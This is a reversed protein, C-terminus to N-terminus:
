FGLVVKQSVNNQLCIFFSCLLLIFCVYLFFRASFIFNVFIIFAMLNKTAFGYSHLIFNLM